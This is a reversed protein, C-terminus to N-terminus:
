TLRQRFTLYSSVPASERIRTTHTGADFNDSAWAHLESNMTKKKVVREEQPTNYRIGVGATGGCPSAWSLSFARVTIPFRYRILSAVPLGTSCGSSMNQRTAPVTASASRRYPDLSLSPVSM